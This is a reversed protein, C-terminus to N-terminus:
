PKTFEWRTADTPFESWALVKDPRVAFFPTGHPMDYKEEYARDIQEILTDDATEEDIREATGEVIVVEEADERHVTIDQNTALNRAWRRREGGGCYFV